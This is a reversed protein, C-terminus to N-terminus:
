YNERMFIVSRPQAGYVGFAARASPDVTYTAIGNWAGRLFSLGSAALDPTIVVSGEHGAPPKTLVFAGTGQGASLTVTPPTVSTDGSGLGRQYSSLGVSAAALATCGDDANTLFATGNWFEARVPVRLSLTVPGAAPVVRLRGYRMLTSAGIQKRDNAGGTTSFDFAASAIGVGDSDTPAVGVRTAGFPGSPTSADRSIVLSTFTTTLAGGSWSGSASAASTDVGLATGAGATDRAAINWNAGFTGGPVHKAFGGSYNGTQGGSANSAQVTVGDISFAQGLYTFPTNTSCAPTTTGVSSVTFHDPYFRGVNGTAVGAVGSGSGLYDALSASLTIIGVESWSVDTVTAAGSSFAGGAITANSLAGTNTLGLGGVLAQSLTAGQPSAEKGFNPTAAGLSNRATVTLTISEGAKAFAAGGANAAAPNPSGGATRLINSIAFDAPKVVFANSSGSLTAGNVTKNAWLTVRGADLFNLTFPANGNADFTMAVSTFSSVGGGNNRAITTPTGGDISMLDAASCATPDNCEYALNVTNAGQLAAECAQTTTSTKVARIFLGSSSTGATQTGITAAAGGASSSFIFGTDAFALQCATTNNTTTGNFCDVGSVPAPTVTSVGITVTQATTVSLSDLASGTTVPLPNTGFSGAPASTLTVSVPTDTYLTSCSADACAKVNISSPLCTVGSGNHELRIHDLVACTVTEQRAANVQAATLFNRYVRVEDINGAFGFANSNEGSANTEGGISPAAGSLANASWAFTASASGVLTGSQDYVYLTATSNGTAAFSVAAAVYYWTNNAVLNASDVVIGVPRYFFRLRGAGPDGLSFGWSGNANTEDDIMIRQGAQTNDTTRIWAAVTLKGASNGFHPYSSPLAVYDKNARNFVGYRCTGPSGAIAPSANSTTPKTASLSSSTGNFTGGTGSDAVEGATGNWAVENLRWRSYVVLAQAQEGIAFDGSLGAPTIGSALVNGSSPVSVSPYSWAGAAYRGVILSDESAGSDLDTSLYTFNLSASAFSASNAATWYRNVSFSPDISSSGISPHDGSAQSIGLSVNGQSSLTTFTATVPRYAASDGIHFVCAVTGSSPTRLQLNGAVWGATRSVAAPCNGSSILTAAGTTVIGATLALTGTATANGALTFHNANNLVLNGYALASVQQLAAGIYQVTMPGSTLDYSSFNYQGSFDSSGSARTVQVTGSGTMSGAAGGSNIQVAALPSFLTSAGNLNFTGGVNFSAGASVAASTNSIKLGGNGGSGYTLAGTVSQAATGTYEVTLNSLTKNSITYQSAFDATAAIRTVQVTGSGTLTGTGAVLVAAAPQLVTAAGNMNLTGNVTFNAGATVPAAVNSIKLGGGTGSGYTLGGTVVQAATGIYEVTLNTLTRNAITYQSAFDATAAIRTVQVTGSGTLTGTGGVTVGAGPTVVVNAAATLTGSATINDNVAFGSTNNINVTNFAITSTTAGGISTQAPTGPTNFNIISSTTFTFPSGATTDVIWNGAFTHTRSTGGAFSATGGITFDGNVTLNAAPSTKAGSGTLQLEWYGSPSTKINQAGGSYNIVNGTASANLTGTSMLTGSVNLTGTGANLWTSGAASGTVNSSTTVTGNNTVTINGTIAIPNTLSLNATSAFDKAGTTLSLSTIGISGTGDITQNTGNLTLTLAGALAGNVTLDGVMSTARSLTTTTGADVILNNFTDFNTNNPLTNNATLEVTGAGPIWTRINSVTFSQALLTGGNTMDIAGNRSAGGNGFQVNGSVTVKSNANFALTAGSTNASGITMSACVGNAVNVTLITNGSITITDAASPQGGPGSGTNIASWNTSAAITIAVAWAAGPLLGAAMALAARVLHKQSCSLKM